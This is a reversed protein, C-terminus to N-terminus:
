SLVALIVALTSAVFITLVFRSCEWDSSDWGQPNPPKM